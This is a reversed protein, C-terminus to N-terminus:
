RSLERCILWDIVPMFMEQWNRRLLAFVKVNHLKLLANNLRYNTAM